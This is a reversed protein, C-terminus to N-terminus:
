GHPQGALGCYGHTPELVACNEPNAPDTGFRMKWRWSMCRSGICNHLPPKDQKELKHPQIGARPDTHSAVAHPCWKNLAEEETYTM